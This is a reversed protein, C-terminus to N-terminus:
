PPWAPSPPAGKSTQNINLMIFELGCIPYVYSGVASAWCAWDAHWNGRLTGREPRQGAVAM